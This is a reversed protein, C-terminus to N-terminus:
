SLGGGFYDLQDEMQKKIKGRFCWAKRSGFLLERSKKCLGMKSNFYNATQNKLGGDM